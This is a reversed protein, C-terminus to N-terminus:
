LLHEAFLEGPIVAVLNQGLTNQCILKSLSFACTM